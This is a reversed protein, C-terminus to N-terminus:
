VYRDAYLVAEKYPNSCKTMWPKEKGSFHVIKPHHKVYDHTIDDLWRLNEGEKICIVGSVNM